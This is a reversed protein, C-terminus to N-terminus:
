SQGSPLIRTNLNPVYTFFFNRRFHSPLGGLGTFPDKQCKTYGGCLVLHLPRNLGLLFLFIHVRGHGKCLLSIARGHGCRLWPRLVRRIKIGLDEKTKVPDYTEALFLFGAGSFSVSFPAKIRM